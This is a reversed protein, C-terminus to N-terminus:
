HRQNVAGTVDDRIRRGLPGDDCGLRCRDAAQIRTVDDRERQDGRDAAEDRPRDEEVVEDETRNGRDHTEHELERVDEDGRKDRLGQRRIKTARVIAHRRQLPDGVRVVGRHTEPIANSM